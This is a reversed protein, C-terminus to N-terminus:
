CVLAPLCRGRMGVFRWGMCLLLSAEGLSCVVQRTGCPLALTIRYTM